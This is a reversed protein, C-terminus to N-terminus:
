DPSRSSRDETLGYNILLRAARERGDVADRWQEWAETSFGAEGPLAAVREWADRERRLADEYRSRLAGPGEDSASEEGHSPIARVARQSRGAALQQADAEDMSHQDHM